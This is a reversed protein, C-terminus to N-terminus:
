YNGTNIAETIKIALDRTNGPKPHARDEIIQWIGEPQIPWRLSYDRRLRDIEGLMQRIDSGVFHQHWDDRKALEQWRVLTEHDIAM